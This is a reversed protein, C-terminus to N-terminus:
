LAAAIAQERKSKPFQEMMRDRFHEGNLTPTHIAYEIAKEALEVNPKSIVLAPNDIAKPIGNVNSGVPICECLMAECLTNPLGEALSFQCFVKARDLYNKLEEQAMFGHLVLNDPADESLMALCDDSPGIIHFEYQPMHTAVKSLFDFGKRQIGKLEKVMGISVIMNEKQVTPDKQWRMADYGTPVVQCNGQINDVFNSVGVPIPEDAIYTNQGEFMTEDVGLLTRAWKIAFAVMARRLNHKQFVGYNIQPLAMTDYGGLIIISNKGYWKAVLVPFFSHYDAFWVYVTDFSRLHIVLYSFQKILEWLLLIPNKYAKFPRETLEAIEDLFTADERVFAIREAYILLVKKKV